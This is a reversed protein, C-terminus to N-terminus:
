CLRYSMCWNSQTCHQVGSSPCLFQGFCTSNQELFLNTFITHRTPKIILIDGRQMQLFKFKKNSLIYHLSTQIIYYVFTETRGLMSGLDKSSTCSGTYAEKLITAMNRYKVLLHQKHGSAKSTQIRNCGTQNVTLFKKVYTGLMLWADYKIWM